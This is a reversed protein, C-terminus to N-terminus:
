IDFFVTEDKGQVRIDFVYGDEAPRAILTAREPEPVAALVPDAANAEAEEPFYIRTVTRNLMGRAFVSVDIHPAQMAGGLGPVPGPKLTRIGFRGEADTECRGFGRFGPWAQAGRPDDPHDFRGEPDAQWTEILGDPIPAGAGDYLTGRIWFGGEAEEALAYPGDPWPLGIHLYPGVTQSPTTEGKSM